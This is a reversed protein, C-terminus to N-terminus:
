LTHQFHGGQADICSVVRRMMSQRVRELRGDQVRLDDFATRIRQQLTQRDAVPEAYVVSKLHGWLYFDLPNLGASRAPWAVPGGRGIWRGPFITNIYQRVTIRFHSPAGYHKMWMVRRVQLSGVELEIPLTNRM